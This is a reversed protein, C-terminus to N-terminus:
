VTATPGSGTSASTDTAPDMTNLWPKVAAPAAAFQTTVSASDRGTIVDSPHMSRLKEVASDAIQTAGQRARGHNTTSTATTLFTSFAAAVIAILTLSVLSEMLVFGASGGARSLRRRLADTLRSPLTRM